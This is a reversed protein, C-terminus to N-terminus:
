NQLSFRSAGHAYPAAPRALQASLAARVLPDCAVARYEPRSFKEMADVLRSLWSNQGTGSRWSQLQQGMAQEKRRIGLRDAFGSM